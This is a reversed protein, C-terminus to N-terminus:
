VTRTMFQSLTLFACNGENPLSSQGINHIEVWEYFNMENKLLCNLVPDNAQPKSKDISEDDLILKKLQHSIDDNIDSKGLLYQYQQFYQKINNNQLQSKTGLDDVTTCM